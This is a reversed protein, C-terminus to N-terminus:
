RNNETKFITEVLKTLLILVLALLSMVWILRFPLLPTFFTETRDGINDISMKYVEWAMWGWFFAALIWNFIDLKKRISPRIREVFIVVSVHSDTMTTYVLAFGVAFVIVLETLEYSGIISGGLWRFVVTAITLLMIFVMVVGGLMTGISCTRRIITILRNIM